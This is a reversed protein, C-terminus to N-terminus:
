FTYGYSNFNYTTSVGGSAVYITQASILPVDHFHAGVPAAGGPTYLAINSYGPTGLGAATSCIAGSAIGASTSGMAINVNITKANRPVANVVSVSAFGGPGPGSYILNYYNVTRETQFAVALVSSVVPWVSILASATYGAPMNAGGYVAPQAAATANRALISSAGTTPNYIAYVAVWGTVPPAGTDMGGAGTTSINLTKNFSALRYTPGGLATGVVIEDATFTASASAAPVSCRVNSAAGVVGASASASWEPGGAVPDAINNDVNSRYVTDGVMVHSGKPWGGDIAQWLAFGRLQIEGLGATIESLIGNMEARGVPRYAPNDNPLEYDPTWGAQLSVKGDPQDATALQEKDGTAAFPTKYIRTAM